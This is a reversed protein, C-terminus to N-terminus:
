HCDSMGDGDIFGYDCLLTQGYGAGVLIANLGQISAGEGHGTGAREQTGSFHGYDPAGDGRFALCGGNSAWIPPCESLGLM